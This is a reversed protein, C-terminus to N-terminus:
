INLEYRMTLVDRKIFVMLKMNYLSIVVVQETFM